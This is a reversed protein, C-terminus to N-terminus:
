ADWALSRAVGPGRERRPAGSQRARGLLLAELVPFAAAGSPSGVARSGARALARRVPGRLVDARVLQPDIPRMREYCLHAADLVEGHVDLQRQSAAANGIRVPRSGRYGDLHDLTREALEAGGDVAYMVQLTTCCGICMAELWDFFRHAAEHLGVTQLAYLVLASDRLWTYRYDWNRVGGIEEPLSTTPAAVIAGTPAFTLLKLALASRLVSDGYPGSYRVGRAWQEWYARTSRLAREAEAEDLAVPAVDGGGYRLALWLRDGAAVTRRGVVGAADDRQLPVASTLAVSERGARAIAGGSVPEVRTAAGAYGFTTAFQVEVPTRGTVGEVLRLIVLERGVHQHRSDDPPAEVPMFDTLRVQGTETTFMTTLVNTAPQYERVSAHHGAPGVRCWGGSRADLLRCFVAPSDFRPCCWWDISGDSAVLAATRMDGIVAYDRIPRYGRESAARHQVRAAM